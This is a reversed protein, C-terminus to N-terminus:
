ESRLITIGYMEQNDPPEANWDRYSHSGDSEYYVKYKGADLMITGDFRRNKEAGGAWETKRYTMEWIVDDTEANEIWGYDDMDGGSGEGLAIIRVRTAKQLTFTESEDARDRVRVIQALVNEKKYDNPDYEKIYDKGNKDTTWITIGYKDPDFPPAANWANFAHSGDTVYYIIYKGKPLKIKEDVMRNKEAGGAYELDANRMDWVKKNTVANTIWGYDSLSKKSHGEGFALIRIELDKSTEIGKSIYEDDGVQIIQVVPKEIANEKFPTINAADDESHTWISIGWFQPDDPPMSNWGDYSHSDDTVYCVIYNGQPLTIFDDFMMNKDAGGAYDSHRFSMQWVRKYTAADYIWAYDFVRSDRGEGIAYIDLETEKSLGFKKEIKEDNGVRIISAVSNQSMQDVIRKGDNVTLAGNPASVTMFLKDKYKRKYEQSDDGFLRKFFDGLDSIENDHNSNGGAFYVEYNGASLEVKEDFNFMDGKDLRDRISRNDLLHWVVNRSKSDLIWGYYYIRNGWKEFGGVTGKVQLTTKQDLTFGKFDIYGPDINGVVVKDQANISLLLTLLVPFLFYINNKHTGSSKM